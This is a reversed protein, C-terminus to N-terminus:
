TTPGVLVWLCVVSGDGGGAMGFGRGFSGPRKERFIAEATELVSEV